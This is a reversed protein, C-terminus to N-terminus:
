EEVVTETRQIQTIIPELFQITHVSRSSLYSPNIYFAEGGMGRFIQELIRNHMSNLEYEAHDFSQIYM